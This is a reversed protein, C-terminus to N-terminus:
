LGLTTRTVLLARTLIFIDLVLMLTPVGKENLSGKNSTDFYGDAQADKSRTSIAEVRRTQKSDGELIMAVPPFLFRKSSPSTNNNTDGTTVLLLFLALLIVVDGALLVVVVAQRLFWLWSAPISPSPPLRRRWLTNFAPAISGRWRLSGLLM